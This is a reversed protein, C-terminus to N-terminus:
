RVYVNRVIRFAEWFRRLRDEMRDDLELTSYQSIVYLRIVDAAEEELRGLREPFKELFEYPTASVPPPVGLDMALVCLAEYAYAIHDHLAM